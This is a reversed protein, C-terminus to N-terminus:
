APMSNALSQVKDDEMKDWYEFMRESLENAGKGIYKLFESETKHGTVSMIIPTPIKGYHMSAFQRRCLHSSVLKHVPYKGPINRKTDSDYQLGFDLRDIGARECIEKLHENFMTKNSELNETYLPPFDGNYKKLIRKVENHVPIKAYVPVKQQTFDVFSRGKQDTIIMAKTMSFLDTGRQGTYIGVILWDRAIEWRENLFNLKLVTELEDDTFIVTPTETTFGKISDLTPHTEIGLTKAEQVITKSYKLYKGVTNDNSTVNERMYTVFQNGMIVGYESVRVNVNLTSLFGQLKQIVTKQKDATRKTIPQNKYTRFPLINEEYYVLYNKLFDLQETKRGGNYYAEIIESLWDGNIVETTQRDRYQKLIYSKLELLKSKSDALEKLVPATESSINKIMGKAFYDPRVTERTKRKYVQKVGASFSIYINAPNKKSQLFYTITAM